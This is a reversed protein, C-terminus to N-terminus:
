RHCRRLNTRAGGKREEGVSKCQKEEGVLSLDWAVASVSVGLGESGSLVVGGERGAFDDVEGEKLLVELVHVM